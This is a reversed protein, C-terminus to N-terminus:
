RRLGDPQLRAPHGDARAATPRGTARATRLGGTDGGHERGHIGAIVLVRREGQGLRYHVLDVEQGKFKVHIIEPKLTM